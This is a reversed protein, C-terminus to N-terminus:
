YHYCLLLYYIIHDLIFIIHMYSYKVKYYEYIISEDENELKYESIKEGYPKFTKAKIEVLRLFEDL